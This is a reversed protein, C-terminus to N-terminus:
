SAGCHEPPQAEGQCTVKDRQVESGELGSKLAELAGLGTSQTGVRM